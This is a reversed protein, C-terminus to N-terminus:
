ARSRGALRAELRDLRNRVERLEALVDSDSTEREHMAEAVEEIEPALFREAVAGRRV